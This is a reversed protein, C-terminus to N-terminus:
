AASRDVIQKPQVVEFQVDEVVESVRRLVQALSARHRDVERLSANRRAEANMIMRDIREALVKDVRKIAAPERAAWSKALVNAELYNMLIELIDKLGKHASVTLMRRPALANRRGPFVAGAEGTERNVGSFLLL